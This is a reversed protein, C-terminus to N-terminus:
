TWRDYEHKLFLFSYKYMATDKALRCTEKAFYGNFYDPYLRLGMLPAIENVIFALLISKEVQKVKLMLYEAMVRYGDDYLDDIAIRTDISAAIFGSNRDSDILDLLILASVSHFNSTSVLNRLIDEARSLKAQEIFYLAESMRVENQLYVSIGLPCYSYRELITEAQKIMESDEGLMRTNMEAHLNLTTFFCSSDFLTRIKRLYNLSSISKNNRLRNLAFALCSIPDDTLQHEMQNGFDACCEHLLHTAVYIENMLLLYSSLQPPYIEYIDIMRDMWKPEPFRGELFFSVVISIAEDFSRYLVNENIPAVLQKWEILNTRVQEVESLAIHTLIKDILFSYHQEFELDYFYTLGCKRLFFRYLEEEYILLGNELRTLTSRSCVAQGASVDFFEHNFSTLLFWKRTYSPDGSVRLLKKREHSILIGIRSLNQQYQM